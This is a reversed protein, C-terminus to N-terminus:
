GGFGGQPQAPLYQSCAQMANRTQDDLTPPQGQQGGQPGGTPLTVGHKKLCEQLRAVAQQDIQPAQGRPSTQTGAAGGANTSKTSGCGVAAFSLAAVVGLLAVARM